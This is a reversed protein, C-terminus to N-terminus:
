DKKLVTVFLTNNKVNSNFFENVTFQQKYIVLSWCGQSVNGSLLSKNENKEFAVCIALLVYKPAICLSSFM